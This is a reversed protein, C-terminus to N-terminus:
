QSFHKIEILKSTASRLQCIITMYDLKINSKFYDQYNLFGAKQEYLNLLIRLEVLLTTLM